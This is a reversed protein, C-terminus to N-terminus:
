LRFFWLNIVRAEVDGLAFRGGGMVMWDHGLLWHGRWLVCWAVTFGVLMVPLFGHTSRLFRCAQGRLLRHTFSYHDKALFGLLSTQITIIQNNFNLEKIDMKLKFGRVNKVVVKPQNISGDRFANRSILTLCIVREFTQYRCCDLIICIRADDKIARPSGGKLTEGVSAEEESIEERPDGELIEWLLYDVPIQDGANSFM